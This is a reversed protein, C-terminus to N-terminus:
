VGKPEQLAQEAITAAEKKGRRVGCQFDQSSAFCGKEKDKNYLRIIRQMDARLRRMEKNEHNISLLAFAMFGVCAGFVAALYYWM